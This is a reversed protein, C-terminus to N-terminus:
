SASHRRRRLLWALWIAVILLVAGLVLALNRVYPRPGVSPLVSESFGYFPLEFEEMARPTGHAVELRVTEESSSNGSIIRRRVLMPLPLGDATRQYSVTDSAQAGPAPLDRGCRVVVWFDDPDLEAWYSAGPIQPGTQETGVKHETWLSDFRVRVLQKTGGETPLYRTETMRFQQDEIMFSLPVGFVRVASEVRCIIGTWWVGFERQGGSFLGRDTLAWAQNEAARGVAFRYRENAVWRQTGVKILHHVGTQARNFTVEETWTDRESVSTMRVRLDIGWTAQLAHHWARPAERLLRERCHPEVQGLTAPAAWLLVMAVGLWRGPGM